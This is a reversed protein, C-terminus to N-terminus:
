RTTLLRLSPANGQPTVAVGNVHDSHGELTRLARGSELDWVKLTRDDSATVVCKGDPTLGVGRVCVHRRKLTHLTRGSELDWVKLTYDDSASVARKGDPTVAVVKVWHSHGELTRLARGSELDWVRLTYDDSASVARKGDPTLAVGNVNESHGELTCLPWGSELDWVKLTTDFSASVACKGDPTLAVGTVAGSHGELTRLERGSRLDWVKLTTDFSASVARKGDPTLAVGSVVRSHGELTHVLGTGPPHLSPYLPRLWPRAAGKSIEDLFNEIGPPDHFPLLRAILQSAFQNPDSLIVNASLRIAEHILKLSERDPYRARVYDHQLDHLQIGRSPDKESEWTALSRDVLYRAVRRAEAEQAAWLTQLVVLPAPVDELLVALKLYREQMQQPIARISVELSKFFSLQGPPLLDEIAGLDAKDLADRTYGWEAPPLGRLSAGIQSVAAALGNCARIIEGAEHPLEALKLRASRALLVRAEDDNFLVASYKRETVARAIAGDRTTFLLRSRPADVLLPKLHELNWVDDVVVLAAKERLMDGFRNQCAFPNDYGSLDDGLVKAVERMRPVFDGDWERGVTIWAIGDPFARQVAKDRCLASALVTKGIGGMGAVATVAINSEEGETFILDRLEAIIKERPIFNQPLPPITDYRPPGGDPVTVPQADLDALLESQQEPLRRYNLRRLHLPRPANATALVPIVQKREELAWMQEARCIESVFSGETLVAILVDCDSLAAEIDRSWSAGGPIRDTDLWVDCGAAELSDRIQHAQSSGDKRSYSIFVRRPTKAAGPGAESSAAM